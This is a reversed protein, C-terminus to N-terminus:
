SKKEEAELRKVEEIAEQQLRKMREEESEPFLKDPYSSTAYKELGRILFNPLTTYNPAKDRDKYKKYNKISEMIEDFQYASIATLIDSWVAGSVNTATYRYQPFGDLSNWYSRMEEFEKSIDRNTPSQEIDIRHKEEGISYEVISNRRCDESQRRSDEVNPSKLYKGSKYSSIMRKIEESRTYREDLFKYIKHCVLQGSIEEVDFLGQNVMFKTIEDIKATNGQYQEAIDESTEELDPLPHESDMREVISEIIMNYLGYGELGYRNILRRIKVDHRMNAMHKFFKM